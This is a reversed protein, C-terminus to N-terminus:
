PSLAACNERSNATLPSPRTPPACTLAASTRRTDGIRITRTTCGSDTVSVSRSSTGAIVFYTGAPAVDLGAARLGEAAPRAQRRADAALGRLCRRAADLGRAIAPQFPAGGSTPSSSSSPRSRRRGARRPGRSGASRGAPSRSRRAPRALDHAHARGHGPLTALPVHPAGDFVLHEYVEDTVCSRPRARRRAAAIAALEDDTSCRAPRTTRPTSCCAAPHAPQVAARLEDLDLRSTRRRRAAGASAVGGALAISPPTPTTSRSSRSSRTAPTARAGAARRRDGRHRRRHRAGRHGPRRAPRLPAAPARRDGARLAPSAAAPRTSTTATPSRTAARGRADRGARRQRPLGPRPQDRRDRVALASMEAFITGAGVLLGLSAWASM